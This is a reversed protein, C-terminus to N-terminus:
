YNAHRAMYDPHASDKDPRPVIVYDYRKMVIQNEDDFSLVGSTDWPEDDSFTPLASMNIVHEEADDLEELFLWLEDLDAIDELQQNLHDELKM